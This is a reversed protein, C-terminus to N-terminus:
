AMGFVRRGGQRCQPVRRDGARVDERAQQFGNSHGGQILNAASKEFDSPLISPPHSGNFSVGTSRSNPLSWRTAVDRSPVVPGPNLLRGPTDTHDTACTPLLAQQIRNAGESKGRRSGVELPSSLIARLPKYSCSCLRFETKYVYDGVVPPGQLAHHTRPFHSPASLPLRVGAAM